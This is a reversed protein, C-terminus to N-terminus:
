IEMWKLGVGASGEECGLPWKNIADGEPVNKCIQRLIAVSSPIDFKKVLAKCSRLYLEDFPIKERQLNSTSLRSCIYYSFGKIGKRVGEDKVRWLDIEMVKEDIQCLIEDSDGEMFGNQLLYEIGWGIGTLGNEFDLSVNDNIEEYIEDLLEGAFEDYILNKTYRAYHAFFLVIGMKGHYLGLNNLFSANLILHNAIRHLLADTTNKEIM